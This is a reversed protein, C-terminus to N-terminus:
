APSTTTLSNRDMRHRGGIMPRDGPLHNMSLAIKCLQDLRKVAERDITKGHAGFPLRHVFDALGMLALLREVPAVGEAM